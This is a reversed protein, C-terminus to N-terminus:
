IVSCTARYQRRRPWPSKCQAAISSVPRNELAPGASPARNQPVVSLCLIANRRSGYQNCAHLVDGGTYLVVQQAAPVLPQHPTGSGKSYLYYPQLYHGTPVLQEDWWVPAKKTSPACVLKARGSSLAYLLM